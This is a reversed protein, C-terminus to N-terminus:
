QAFETAHADTMVVADDEHLMKVTQYQSRLLGSIQTRLSLTLATICLPHM